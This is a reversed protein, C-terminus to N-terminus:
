DRWPREYRVIKYILLKSESDQNDYSHCFFYDRSSTLGKIVGKIEIEDLVQKRQSYPPGFMLIKSSETSDKSVSFVFDSDWIINDIQYPTAYATEQFTEINTFYIMGHKSLIYLNRIAQPKYDSNFEYKYLEYYDISDPNTHSFVFCSDYNVLYYLYEDDIFMESYHATMWDSLSYSFTINMTKEDIVDFGKPKRLFINGNAVLIQNYDIDFIFTDIEAPKTLLNYIILKRVYQQLLYLKGKGFAINSSYAIEVSDEITPESADFINILYSKYDAVALLYSDSYLLEDIETSIEIEAVKELKTDGVPMEPCSIGWKLCSLSLLSLFAVLLFFRNM